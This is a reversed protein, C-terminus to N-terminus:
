SRAEVLRPAPAGEVLRGDILNLRRDYLGHPLEEHSIILMTCRGREAGLAALIESKAGADLNALPEDLILFARNCAIARALCLRARQGGSLNGGAEDIQAGLGERQRELLDDLAARRLAEEIAADNTDGAGFSVIERLSGSFLFHEQLMVAFQGRWDALPWANADKGDIAITGSQPNRLRLVLDILTSKGAGSRGEIWVCERAAIDCSANKLLLREPADVHAFSVGDLALAGLARVGSPAARREAKPVFAALREARTLAGTVASALENIKEVPKLLQNVYAMSITLEGVTMVGQLTLFAGIGVVLAVAGGNAFQMAQELSVAARTESVGAALSEENRREFTAQAEREGSVARVFRQNRLLENLFASVRGEHVRKQRSAKQLRAAGTRALMSLAIMILAGILGLIPNVLTMAVLTFITTAAHRFITPGTKCFLRAVQSADDIVRLVLDGIKLARLQDLPRAFITEVVSARLRNTMGERLRANLNKEVSSALAAAVAIAFSAFALISIQEPGSFQWFPHAQAAAGKVLVGDIILKIPWPAAAALASALFGAAISLAIRRRDVFYHRWFPRLISAATPHTKKKRSIM